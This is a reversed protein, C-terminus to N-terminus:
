RPDVRVPASRESNGDLHITALVYSYTLRPNATRDRVTYAGAHSRASILKRNVRQWPGSESRRLINFGLVGTESASRWTVGIGGSVRRASLGYVTVATPWGLEGNLRFVQDPPVPAFAAWCTSKREWSTCGIGMGGGPNQFASEQNSQVTRNQWNWSLRM